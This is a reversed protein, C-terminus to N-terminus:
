LSYGLEALEKREDEVEVQRGEREIREAFMKKTERPLHVWKANGEAIQDYLELAEILRGAKELRAWFAHATENKDNAPPLGRLREEARRRFWIVNSQEYWKAM